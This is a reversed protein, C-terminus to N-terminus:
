NNKKVAKHLSSLMREIAGVEAFISTAVEQSLYGLDRCLILLYETEVLSGEAINLFRAYEQPSSRKSGEAISTPVSAAARRIQAVPGFREDSPFASTLRYIELVM